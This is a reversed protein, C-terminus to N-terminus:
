RRSSNQLITVLINVCPIKLYRDKEAENEAYKTEVQTYFGNLLNVGNEVRATGEIDLADYMLLVLAQRDSQSYDLWNYGTAGLDAEAYVFTTIMMALMVGLVSKRKM